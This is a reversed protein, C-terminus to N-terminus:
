FREAFFLFHHAVHGSLEGIIDGAAPVFSFGLYAISHIGPDTMSFAAASIVGKELLQEQGSISFLGALDHYYTVLSVGLLGTIILARALMSAIATSVIEVPPFGPFWLYFYFLIGLVGVYKISSLVRFWRPRDVFSFERTMHSSARQIQWGLWMVMVSMSVGTMVPVQYLQFGGEMFPTVLDLTQAAAMSTFLGAVFGGFVMTVADVADLKGNVSMRLSVTMMTAGLFVAVFGYGVITIAQDTDLEIGNTVLPVFLWVGILAYSLIQLISDRTRRRYSVLVAIVLCILDLILPVLTLVLFAPQETLIGAVDDLTDVTKFLTQVKNARKSCWM